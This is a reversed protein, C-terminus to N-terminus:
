RSDRFCMGLSFIPVPAKSDYRNELSKWRVTEGESNDEYSYEESSDLYPSGPEDLNPVEDVLDEVRILNLQSGHIGIKKGKEKMKVEYAFKKMEIAEEDDASSDEDTPLVYDEDSEDESSDDYEPMVQKGKDYAGECIGKYEQDQFEHVVEDDSVYQTAEDVAAMVDDEIEDAAAEDDGAWIEQDDATLEMGVDETYM